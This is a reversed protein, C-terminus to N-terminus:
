SAYDSRREESVVLPVFAVPLISQQRVAGDASKEVLTLDQYRPQTGLPVVMRGGNTLQAILAPPVETAAAAVIIGDYPAYKPWGENGDGIRTEINTYGLRHLRERAEEALEPIVEVSYVRRVLEALVAAQYGSGTGIDLVIHEPKPAILDTMLAVIFPQSITQGFGIPLAGDVYAYKQERRPVFEHRPVKAMAAMVREDLAARGTYDATARAEAAIDELMARQQKMDGHGGYAPRAGTAIAM